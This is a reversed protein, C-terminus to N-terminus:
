ALIAEAVRLYIAESALYVIGTDPGPQSMCALCDTPSLGTNYRVQVNATCQTYM